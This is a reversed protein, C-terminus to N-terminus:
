PMTLTRDAEVVVEGRQVMQEADETTQVAQAGREGMTEAEEAMGEVLVDANEEMGPGTGEAKEVPEEAVPVAEEMKQEVDEMAHAEYGDPCDIIDIVGVCFRAECVSNALFIGDADCVLRAADTGCLMECFPSSMPRVAPRKGASQVPAVLEPQPEPEPKNPEPTPTPTPTPEPEAVTEGDGRDSNQPCYQVTTITAGYCATAVCLNPAIYNGSSDCVTRGGVACAATCSLVRAQVASSSLLIALGLAFPRFRTMVACIILLGVFISSALWVSILSLGPCWTVKSCTNFKPRLAAGSPSEQHTGPLPSAIPTLM